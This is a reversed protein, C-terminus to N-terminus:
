EAVAERVTIVDGRDTTIRIADEGITDELDAAYEARLRAGLHMFEEDAATFHGMRADVNLRAALRRILSPDRALITPSLNWGAEIALAHEERIYLAWAMAGVPGRPHVSRGTALCGVICIPLGRRPAYVVRTEGDEQIEILGLNYDETAM